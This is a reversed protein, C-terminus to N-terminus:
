HTLAWVIVNTGMKLAAERKEPPAKHVEPDDWGDGDDQEDDDRGDPSKPSVDTLRPDIRDNILNFFIDVSGLAPDTSEERPQEASFSFARM